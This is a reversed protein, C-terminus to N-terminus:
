AALRRFDTSYPRWSVKATGSGDFNKLTETVSGDGNVLRITTQVLDFVGDGDNDFKLTKTNGDASITSMTQNAISRFSGFADLFHHGPTVVLGNSLSIWTDTINTFVRTVRKSVTVGRGFVGSADFSQVHDAGGIHEIAKESGDALRIATGAPFCKPGKWGDFNRLDDQLGPLDDGGWWPLSLEGFGAIEIATRVASNSNNGTSFLSNYGYPMRTSNIANAVLKFNRAAASLDEGRAVDVWHTRPNNVVHFYDYSSQDLREYSAVLDVVNNNDILNDYKSPTKGDPEPFASFIFTENNKNTYLIFSHNISGPLYDNVDRIGVLITEIRDM